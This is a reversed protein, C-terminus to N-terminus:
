SSAFHKKEQIKRAARVVFSRPLFRVANAMFSNMFGPIAVAKGKMMAKYGIRAVKGASPLNRRVLTKGEGIAAEHFGSQTSGPCLATVTVGQDRVENNVAESFSLLYAKTAFYVSMTPGPQFAATSAINLIKGYGRKVMGPIFLWMLHTPTLMNLNIMREQRYWDTEAFLAFDGSGANNILYDIDMNLKRVFEFVEDAASPSSLDKEIVHVGVHYREEFIKKIEHLKPLNRAVLVLNDGSSAHIKALEYGIGGSAGTILATRIM